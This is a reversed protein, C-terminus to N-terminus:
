DYSNDGQGKQCLRSYISVTTHVASMSLDGLLAKEEGEKSLKILLWMLVGGMCSRIYLLMIVLATDCLVKIVIM